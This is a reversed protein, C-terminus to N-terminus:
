SNFKYYYFLNKQSMRKERKLVKVLHDAAIVERRSADLEEQLQVLKKNAINQMEEIEEYLRNSELRTNKLELEVMEKSQHLEEFEALAIFLKDEIEQLSNLLYNGLPYPSDPLYNLSDSHVAFEKVLGQLHMSINQLINEEPFQELSPFYSLLESNHENKQYKEWWEYLYKFATNRSVKARFCIENIDPIDTKGNQEFLTNIVELVRSATLKNNNKM